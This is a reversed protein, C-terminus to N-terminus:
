VFIQWDRRMPMKFEMVTRTMGFMTESQAVAIKIKKRRKKKLRANQHVVMEVLTIEMMASKEMM